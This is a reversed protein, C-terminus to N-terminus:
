LLQPDPTILRMENTATFGLSTYLASGEASAHLIVADVHNAACWDRAVQML